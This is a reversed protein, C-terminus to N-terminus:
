QYYEKVSSWFRVAAVKEYMNSVLQRLLELPPQSGFADRAPLNVDDVFVVNISGKPAGLLNKHVSIMKSELAMQLGQSSSRANMNVVVPQLCVSPGRSM